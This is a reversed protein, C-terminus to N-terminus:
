QTYIASANQVSRDQCFSPEVHTQIDSDPFKDRIAMEVRKSIEHGDYVSISAKVQITLDIFYAAGSSRMRLSKISQVGESKEVIDRVCATVQPSCGDMLVHAAKLCMKLSVVFIIAAVIFTAVIDAKNLWSRWIPDLDFIGVLYVALLGALVVVSSIIDTSFHMADAELAQSKSERAVKRLARVRNLDLAISIVVIGLAWITPETMTEDTLLRHFGEHVVYACVGFLLLSELFASLNEMRAHGYTHDADAPRRALRVALWTMGSAVLDLASHLAESLLALSNTYLGAFLKLLTLVLCSFFSLLAAQEKRQAERSVSDQTTVANAM